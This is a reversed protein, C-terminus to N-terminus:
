VFRWIELAELLLLAAKCPGPTDNTMEDCGGRM